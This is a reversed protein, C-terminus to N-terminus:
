NERAGGWGGGKSGQRPGDAPLGPVLAFHRLFNIFLLLFSQVQQSPFAGEGSASPHHAPGRPIGTVSFCSRDSSRGLGQRGGLRRFVQCANMVWLSNPGSAVSGGAGKSASCAGQPQFSPAPTPTPCSSAPAEERPNCIKRELAPRGVGEEEGSNREPPQTQQEPFSCQLRCPGARM